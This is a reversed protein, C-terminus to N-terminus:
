SPSPWPPTPTTSSSPAKDPVTWTPTTKRYRRVIDAIACAVFFYQQKLRLERGPGCRDSPYLVKAITESRNKEEV